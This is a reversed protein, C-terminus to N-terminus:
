WLLCAVRELACRDCDAAHLASAPHRRRCACDSVSRARVHSGGCHARHCVSCARVPSACGSLSALARDAAARGCFEYRLVRNWLRNCWTRGGGGFLRRLPHLVITRIKRHRCAGARWAASRVPDRYLNRNWPKIYRVAAVARVPHPPAPKQSARVASILARERHPARVCACSLLFGSASRDSAPIRIPFGTNRCHASRRHRSQRWGGLGHVRMM